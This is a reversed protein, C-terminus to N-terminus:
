WRANKKYKDQLFNRKIDVPLSDDSESVPSIDETIEISLLDLLGTNPAPWLSFCFGVPFPVSGQIQSFYQLVSLQLSIYANRPWLGINLYDTYGRM